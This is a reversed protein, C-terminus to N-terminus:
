GVRVCDLSWQTLVCQRSSTLPRTEPFAARGALMEFLVCGFAWIDARKDVPMGRAQEPSMYAPTGLIVGVSTAAASDLTTTWWLRRGICLRRCHHGSHWADRWGAYVGAIRVV